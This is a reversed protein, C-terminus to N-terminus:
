VHAECDFGQSGHCRRVPLCPRIGFLGPRKAKCSRAVVMEGSNQGDVDDSPHFLLLQNDVLAVFITLEGFRPAKPDVLQAQFDSGITQVDITDPSVARIPGLATRVQAARQAADDLGAEALECPQGSHASRSSEAEGGTPSELQLLM